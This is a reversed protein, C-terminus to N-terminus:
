LVISKFKIFLVIVNLKSHEGFSICYVFNRSSTTKQKKAATLVYVSLGIMGAGSVLRCSSCDEGYDHRKSVLSGGGSDSM